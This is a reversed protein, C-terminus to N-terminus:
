LVPDPTPRFLAHSKGPLRQAGPFRSRLVESGTWLDHPKQREVTHETPRVQPAVDCVLGGNDGRGVEPVGRLVFPETLRELADDSTIRRGVDIVLCERSYGDMVTLLRLLRLARWILQQPM